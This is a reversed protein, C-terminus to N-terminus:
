IKHTCLISFNGTNNNFSGIWKSNTTLCQTVLQYEFKLESDKFSDIEVRFTIFGFDPYDFFELYPRFAIDEIIIADGHLCQSLNSNRDPFAKTSVIWKISSNYYTIIILLIEDAINKQKYNTRTYGSILILWPNSQRPAKQKRDINFAAAINSDVEIKTNYEKPSVLNYANVFLRYINLDHNFSASM